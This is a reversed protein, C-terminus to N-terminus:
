MGGLKDSSAGTTFALFGQGNDLELIGNLISARARDLSAEAKLADPHIRAIALAGILESLLAAARTQANEVAMRDLLTAIGQTLRDIAAVFKERIALPLRPVDGALVPIPCGRDIADRHRMSLYREVFRTLALRPDPTDLHALFTAYHNEFMFGITEAVLDDKSKFHAYFGGHTLGARGMIDAVGIRDPGHARIANSAEQLVRVRTKAKRDTEYRM